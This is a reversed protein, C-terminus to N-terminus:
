SPDLLPNRSVVIGDEDAYLYDGPTFSVGLFRVPIDHQGAGQKLSKRPHTALAKIAMRTTALVSADRVCGYVVAGSWGNKAALTALQDGILACRLSGGGDVVLVRGNGNTELAERVLSNDEFCLITSIQGHFSTIAGFDALLPEAVQVGTSHTDCLDATKFKRELLGQLQSGGHKL